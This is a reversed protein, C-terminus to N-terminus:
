LMQCQDFKPFHQTHLWSFIRTISEDRSGEAIASPLLCPDM